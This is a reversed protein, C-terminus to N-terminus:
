ICYIPLNIPSTAILFSWPDTEVKIIEHGGFIWKQLPEAVFRVKPTQNPRNKLKGLM